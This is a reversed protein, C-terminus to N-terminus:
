SLHEVVTPVKGPKPALNTEVGTFTKQGHCDTGKIVLNGAGVPIFGDCCVAPGNPALIMFVQCANLCKDIGQVYSSCKDDRLGQHNSEVLTTEDKKPNIQLIKNASLPAVYVCLHPVEAINLVNM